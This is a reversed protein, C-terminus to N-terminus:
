QGEVASGPESGPDAEAIGVVDPRAVTDEARIVMAASDYEGDFGKAEVYVQETDDRFTSVEELMVQRTWKTPREGTEIVDTVTGRLVFQESLKKLPPPVEADDDFVGLICDVEVYDGEELEEVTEAIADIDKEVVDVM